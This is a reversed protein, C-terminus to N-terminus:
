SIRDVSFMQNERLSEGNRERERERERWQKVHRQAICLIDEERKGVGEGGRQVMSSGKLAGEM